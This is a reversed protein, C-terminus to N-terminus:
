PGGKRPFPPPKPPATPATPTMIQTISASSINKREAAPAQITPNWAQKEQDKQEAEALAKQSKALEGKYLKEQMNKLDLVTFLKHRAALELARARWLAFGIEKLSNRQPLGYRNAVQNSPGTKAPDFYTDMERESLKTFGEDTDPNILLKEQLDLWNQLRRMCYAETKMDADQSRFAKVRYVNGRGEYEAIGLETLIKYLETKEADNLSGKDFKRLADAICGVWLQAATHTFPKRVPGQVEEGREGSSLLQSRLAAIESQLRVIEQSRLANEQQLRESEQPSPPPSELREPSSGESSIERSRQSPSSHASSPVSSPESGASLRESLREGSDLSFRSMREKAVNQIAYLFERQQNWQQLVPMNFVTGLFGKWHHMPKEIQHIRQDLNSFLYGVTEPAAEEIHSQIYQHFSQYIKSGKVYKAQAPDNDNRMVFRDTNPDYAVNEELLALNPLVVSLNSQISPQSPQM